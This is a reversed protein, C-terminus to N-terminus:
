TRAYAAPRRSTRELAPEATLALALVLWVLLIQYSILTNGAASIAYSAVSAALGWALAEGDKVHLLRWLRGLVGLGFASLCILGVMGTEAAAMAYHSLMTTIATREKHLPVFSEPWYREMYFGSTGLGAGLIPRERFVRLAVLYSATRQQVSIDQAAVAEEVNKAADDLSDGMSVANPTLTALLKGGHTAGVMPLGVLLSLTVLGARQLRGPRLVLAGLALAGFILYALRSGTVIIAAGLLAGSWVFARRFREPVFTPRDMSYLWFAWGSLLYTALISPEVMTLSVRPFGYLSTLWRFGGLTSNQVPFNALPSKIDLLAVGYQVFTLIAFVVTTWYHTRLVSLGLGYWSLLCCLALFLTSAFGLGILQKISKSHSSEGLLQINPERQVLVVTITAVLFFALLSVVATNLPFRPRYQWWTAATLAILALGMVHSATVAVGVEVAWGILPVCVVFLTLTTRTLRFPM